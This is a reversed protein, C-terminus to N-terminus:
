AYVKTKRKYIETLIITCVVVVVSYIQVLILGGPHVNFCIFSPIFDLVPHIISSFFNFIDSLQNTSFDKPLSSKIYNILGTQSTITLPICLILGLFPHNFASLLYMAPICFISYYISIRFLNNMNIDNKKKTFALLLVKILTVILLYKTMIAKAGSPSLFHLGVNAELWWKCGLFSTVQGFVLVPLILYVIDQRFKYISSIFNRPQTAINEDAHSFLTIKDWLYFRKFLMTLFSFTSLILMIQRIKFYISLFYLTNLALAGPMFLMLNIYTHKEKPFKSYTAILVSPFECAFCIGQIFSIVGIIISSFISWRDYGPLLFCIFSTFSLIYNYLQNEEKKNNLFKLNSLVLPYFIKAIHSLSLVFWFIWAVSNDKSFYEREAISYNMLVAHHARNTFSGIMCWLVNYFGSNDHTKKQDSKQPM